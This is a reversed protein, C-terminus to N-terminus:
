RPLCGTVSRGQFRIMAHNFPEWPELEPSRSGEIPVRPGRSICGRAELAPHRLSVHFSRLSSLQLISPYGGIEASPGELTGLNCIPFPVVRSPATSGGHYGHIDVLSRQQHRKYACCAVAISQKTREQTHLFMLNGTREMRQTCGKLLLLPNSVELM